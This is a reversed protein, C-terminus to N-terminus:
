ADDRGELVAWLEDRIETHCEPCLDFYRQGSPIGGTSTNDEVRVMPGAWDEDIRKGCRDCILADSM